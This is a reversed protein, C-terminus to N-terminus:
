APPMRPGKPAPTSVTSMGCIRSSKPVVVAPTV